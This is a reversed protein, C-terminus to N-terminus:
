LFFILQSSYLGQLPATVLTKGEMNSICCRCLEPHFDYYHRQLAALTGTHRCFMVLMRSYCRTDSNRCKYGQVQYPGPRTTGILM